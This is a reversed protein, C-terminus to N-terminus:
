GSEPRFLHEQTKPNGLAFRFVGEVIGMSIVPFLLNAGQM